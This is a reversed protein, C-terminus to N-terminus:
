FAKHTRNKGREWGENFADASGEQDNLTGLIFGGVIIRILWYGGDVRQMDKKSMATLGNETKKM